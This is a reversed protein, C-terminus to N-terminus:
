SDIRGRSAGRNFARQVILQTQNRRVHRCVKDGQAKYSMSKGEGKTAKDALVGFRESVM